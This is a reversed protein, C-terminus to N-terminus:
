LIGSLHAYPVVAVDLVLFAPLGWVFHWKRTKHRVAYMALMGGLSGGILCLGLLRAEPARRRRANGTRAVHKDWAFM